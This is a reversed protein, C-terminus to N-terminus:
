FFSFPCDVVFNGGCLRPYVPRWLVGSSVLVTEGACAPISGRSDPHTTYYAPKGRVLPSLGQYVQPAYACAFNGGCLRPYVRMYLIVLLFPFTEGACAPISGINKLTIRDSCRKGRVLPSLGQHLGRWGFFGDNGGCLRPYVGMDATLVAIGCTEGACAPISGLWSCFGSPDTPKGRVLPSLGTEPRFRNVM